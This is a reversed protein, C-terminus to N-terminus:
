VILKKSLVFYDESKAPHMDLLGNGAAGKHVRSSTVIGASQRRVGAVNRGPLHSAALVACLSTLAPM